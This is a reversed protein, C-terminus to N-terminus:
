WLFTCSGKLTCVAKQNTVAQPNSCQCWGNAYRIKVCVSNVQNMDSACAPCGWTESCRVSTGNSAYELASTDVTQEVAFAPAAIVFLLTVMWLTRVRKM